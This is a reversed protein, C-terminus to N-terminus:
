SVEKRSILKLLSAYAPDDEKLHLGGQLIKFLLCQLSQCVGQARDGCMPLEESSRITFKHDM